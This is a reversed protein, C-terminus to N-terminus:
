VEHSRHGQITLWMRRGLTLLLVCLAVLVALQIALALRGVKPVVPVIAGVVKANIIPSSTDMYISGGGRTAVVTCTGASLGYILGTETVACVSPDSMTQYRVPDESTGGETVARSVSGSVIDFRAVSLELPVQPKRIGFGTLHRSFITITGDTEVFYGDPQGDPLSRVLLQSIPRWTINDRSWALVGDEPRAKPLYIEIPADLSTVLAGTALKATVGVTIYGIDVGSSNTAIAQNDTTSESVLVAQNSTDSMSMDWVLNQTNAAPPVVVQVVEVKRPAVGVVPAVVQPVEM